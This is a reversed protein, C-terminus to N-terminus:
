QRFSQIAVYFLGKRQLYIFGAETKGSGTPAIVVLNKDRNEKIFIQMENLNINAGKFFEDVFSLTDDPPKEEVDQAQKSSSAHDIRLLLGKLLRYYKILKEEPLGFKRAIDDRLYDM